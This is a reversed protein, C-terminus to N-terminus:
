VKQFSVVIATDTYDPNDWIRVETYGLFTIVGQSALDELKSNYNEEEFSNKKVSVFVRGGNNLLPVLKILDEANLHNPTFAGSSVLLDYKGSISSLDDKIDLNFFNNYLEWDSARQIMSESFDVGDILVKPKTNLIELGLKGTGSGIDLINGVVDAWQSEIIEAVKKHLIYNTENVFRDYGQATYDYYGKLQSSTEFSYAENCDNPHGM